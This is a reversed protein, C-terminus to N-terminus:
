LFNQESHLFNISVFFTARFLFLQWFTAWCSTSLGLAPIHLNNHALVTHTRSRLVSYYIKKTTRIQNLGSSSHTNQSEVIPSSSLFSVKRCIRLFSPRLCRTQFCLGTRNCLCDSLRPVLNSVISVNNQTNKELGLSDGFISLFLRKTNRCLAPSSTCTCFHEVM